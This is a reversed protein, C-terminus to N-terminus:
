EAILNPDSAEGVREHTLKVARAYAHRNDVRCADRRATVRWM